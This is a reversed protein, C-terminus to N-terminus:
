PTLRPARGRLMGLVLLLQATLYLAMITLDPLRGQAWETFLRLALLTDSAAFALGGLTTVLGGRTAVAAMVILALGYVAVPIVYERLAPILVAVFGAWWALYLLSWRSFRHRFRLILAITYAVHAVLFASLGVVFFHLTVDGIWSFLVGVLLLVRPALPGDRGLLVVPVVLAPMLLPKTATDVTEAPVLKATLHIASVVAFPLFTLGAWRSGLPIAPTMM